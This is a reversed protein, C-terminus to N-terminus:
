QQARHTQTFAAETVCFRVQREEGVWFWGTCYLLCVVKSCHVLKIDDKCKMPSVLLLCKSFVRVSLKWYTWAHFVCWNVTPFSFFTYLSILVNNTKFLFTYISCPCYEVMWFGSESCLWKKSLLFQSCFTLQCFFSFQPWGSKPTKRNQCTGLAM